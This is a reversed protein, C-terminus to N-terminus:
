FACTGEMRETWSRRVGTRPRHCCTTRGTPSFLPSLRLMSATRLNRSYCRRTLAMMKPYVERRGPKGSPSKSIVSSSGGAALVCVSQLCKELVEEELKSQLRAKVFLFDAMVVLDLKLNLLRRLKDSTLELGREVRKIWKELRRLNREAKEILEKSVKRKKATKLIVGKWHLRFEEMKQLAMELVLKSKRFVRKLYKLILLPSNFDGSM